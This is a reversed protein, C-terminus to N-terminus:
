NKIRKTQELIDQKTRKKLINRLLKDDDITKVPSDMTNALTSDVDLCNAISQYESKLVVEAMYKRSQQYDDAFPEKSISPYESLRSQLIETYNKVFSSTVKKSEILQYCKKYIRTITETEAEIPSENHILSIISLLQILFVLTLNVEKSSYCDYSESVVEEEEDEEQSIQSILELIDFVLKESMFKSFYATITTLQIEGFDYKSGKPEVYGYRRLIESNPHDSYTNYIQEGKKIPKISTMVLVQDKNYTLVANNLRTDANLTDALPVMSKIYETEDEEDDEVGGAVVDFSYSMIITAIKTFEDMTMGKLKEINWDHVFGVLREYMEVTKDKGVRELIGSPKLRELEEENWFLLEDFPYNLDPLVNLYNMWKSSEKGKWEYLLVLILADWENELGALKDSIEPQDLILSNNASNLLIKDPITFLTEDISIDELAIVGRGQNIKRLDSIQVKPSVTVENDSLFTLFKETKDSFGTDNM